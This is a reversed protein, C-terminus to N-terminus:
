HLLRPRRITQDPAHTNFRIIPRQRGRHSRRYGTVRILTVDPVSEAGALLFSMDYLIDPKADNGGESEMSSREEASTQDISLQM